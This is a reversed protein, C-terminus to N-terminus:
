KLAPQLLQKKLLAQLRVYHIERITTGAGTGTKKVREHEEVQKSIHEFVDYIKPFHFCCFIFLKHNLGLPEIPM